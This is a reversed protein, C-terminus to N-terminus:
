RADYVSDFHAVKNSLSQTKFETNLFTWWYGGGATRYAIINMLKQNKHSLYYRIEKHTQYKELISNELNNGVKLIHQQHSQSSLTFVLNDFLIDRAENRWRIVSTTYIKVNQEKSNKILFISLRQLVGEFLQAPRQHFNSVHLIPYKKIFNQFDQMSRNSFASIPIIMGCIGNSNLLKLVGEIIFTYLNGCSETEYGIVKYDKKVKSYGVYPPNGIIVDFGGDQLIGYFATFWHFPKHSNLWNEYESENNLDINYTKALYHNLEDELEDFKSQLNEKDTPTVIGGHRTQQEKFKEFLVTADEAKEKISKMTNYFVNDLSETVAKEVEKYTAFGILTNGAQINFDIDPLPEIKKVDDLQAVMKLFLRLKCIEIAEDMIDVGYLNNIIISKLIFYKQNPHKEIRELEERFDKSKQPHPKKPTNEVGSVHPPLDNLFIQMRDLCAEYLPELINLAAFLFAGSGCTPDLITVKTIAKWFARLLEPGECNEIVDQAFQRINLNYTILDNINNIEGNEM